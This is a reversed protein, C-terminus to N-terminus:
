NNGPPEPPPSGGNGSGGGGHGGSLAVIGGILTIAGVVWPWNKSWWSEKSAAPEMVVPKETVVPPPLAVEQSAQAEQVQQTVPSGKPARFFIANAESNLVDNGCKKIWVAKRLFVNDTPATVFETGAPLWGKHVKGSGSNTEVWLDKTSVQIKENPALVRNPDKPDGGLRLYRPGYKSTDHQESDPRKAFRIKDEGWSAKLGLGGPQVEWAFATTQFVFFFLVLKVVLSFRLSFRKM